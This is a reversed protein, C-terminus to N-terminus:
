THACVDQCVDIIAHKKVFDWWLIFNVKEFARLKADDFSFFVIAKLM